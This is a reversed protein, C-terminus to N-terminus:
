ELPGMRHWPWLQFAKSCFFRARYFMWEARLWDLAGAEPLKRKQWLMMDPNWEILRDHVNDASSGYWGEPRNRLGVCYYPQRSFLHAIYAFSSMHSNYIFSTRALTLIKVLARRMLAGEEVLAPQQEHSIIRDGYRKRVLRHMRPSDSSVYFQIEPDRQCHGDMLRFFLALPCYRTSRWNDRSRITVGITRPPLDFVRALLEPQPKLMDFQRHLLRAFEGEDV